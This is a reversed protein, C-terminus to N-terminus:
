ATVTYIGPTLNDIVTEATFLVSYNGPGTVTVAAAAGQPLGAINLQLSGTTLAYTVHAAIPTLSALIEVQQTGPAAAYRANTLQVERAEISYIGPRLGNINTPEGVTRTFGDPGTIVIPAPTAQPLGSLTLALSGSALVYSVNPATVTSGATVGISQTPPSGSYISGDHTVEVVEITYNGAALATLTTTASLTRTYGGPGTVTVSAPAGTPLGNITVVLSGFRAPQPGPDSPSDGSCGAFAGAAVLLLARFRVDIFRLFRESM